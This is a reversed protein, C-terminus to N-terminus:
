TKSRLRLLRSAKEYAEDYTLAAVNLGEARLNNEWNKAQRHKKILNDPNLPKDSGRERRRKMVNEICQDLPTALHVFLHTDVMSAMQKCKERGPSLVGELFLRPRTRSTLFDIIDLVAAYPQVGDVGGTPTHYRGVFVAGRKTRTWAAKPQGPLMGLHSPGDARDMLARALTSKGSGNTGHVYVLVSTKSPVGSM